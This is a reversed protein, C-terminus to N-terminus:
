GIERAKKIRDLYRLAKRREPEYELVRKFWTEAADMAGRKFEIVGLNELADVTFPDIEIARKYFRAAEGPRDLHYQLVVGADNWVQAQNDAFRVAQQYALHADRYRGQDRLFLGLNAWELGDEPRYRLLTRTLAEARALSRAAVHRSAMTRLVELATANARDLDLAKVCHTEARAEDNNEQIALSGLRAWAEAYRQGAPTKVVQEFAQRATAHDGSAEALFGRYYLPLPSGPQRKQLRDLLRLGETWLERDQGYATWIAQYTEAHEPALQVAREFAETAWAPKGARAAAVGARKWSTLAYGQTAENKQYLKASQRYAVASDRFLGAHECALGLFYHYDPRNKRAPSAARLATVATEADPPDQYLCALGKYYHAEHHDPELRLAQDCRDAADILRFKIEGAQQREPGAMLRQADQFYARGLLFIVDARGAFREEASELLQIAPLVQGLELLACASGTWAEPRDPHAARLAQYAELAEAHRGNNALTQARDRNLSETQAIGSLALVLILLTMRVPM